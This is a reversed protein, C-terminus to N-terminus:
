SYIESSLLSETQKFFLSLLIPLMIRPKLELYANEDDCFYVRLTVVGTFYVFIAGPLREEEKRRNVTAPFTGEGQKLAEQM